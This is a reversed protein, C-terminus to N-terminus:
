PRDGTEAESLAMRAIGAMDRAIARWVAKDATEAEHSGVAPERAEILTLAAKLRDIMEAPGDPKRKGLRWAQRCDPCARYRDDPKPDGCANCITM